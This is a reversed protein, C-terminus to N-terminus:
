EFLSCGYFDLDNIEAAMTLAGGNFVAGYSNDGAGYEFIDVIAGSTHRKTIVNLESQDIHELGDALDTADEYAVRIAALAQEAAIGTLESAQTVVRESTTTFDPSTKLDNWSSGLLCVEPEVTCGELDGDHISSVLDTTDWYFIAGYSNDGAGYEIATFTRAGAPEYIRVFNFEHQDVREFAEEVTTVDTHSSQQVAIIVRQKDLDSLGVPSTVKSYAPALLPNERIDNYTDGFLCGAPPACGDGTCDATLNFKGRLARTHGKVLLRYQGTELDRDISSWQNRGDDDNRAVYPGWGNPGLKYLYLVTDISKEHPVRSTFAHIQAPASLQFTWTHFGEDATLRGVAATSFPLDGHYTPSPFSDLKGDVPVDDEPPKGGDDCGFLAALM